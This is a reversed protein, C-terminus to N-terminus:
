LIADAILKAGLVVLLLNVVLYFTRGRMRRILWVGGLTTAIAVPALSASTLLNATSFQGLAVYAPVKAWNIMAFLVANTGAFEQHPLQKPTVWMQYPPSGAHAIQSTFGTAVGFLTGVWDPSNSAAAVRGGREVWIRWLGFLVSIFGVAAMVAEVSVFEALAWGAGIGILCGPFMVVVIRRNWSHRFAWVSIVDQVILVPLLIAAAQVPSIALALIPTALAGAGALGGKALGLVTTAVLAAVIFATSHDM